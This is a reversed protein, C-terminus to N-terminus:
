HATRTFRSYYPSIVIQDTSRDYEIVEGIADDYGYLRGNKPEFNYRGATNMGDGVGGTTNLVYTNGVNTITIVISNPDNLSSVWVGEFNKYSSSSGCGPTIILLGLLLFVIISIRKYQKAM